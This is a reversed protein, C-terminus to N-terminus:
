PRSIDLAHVANSLPEGESPFGIGLEGFYNYGWCWVSDSAGIACASGYVDIAKVDTLAIKEPTSSSLIEGPPESGIQEGWCYAEEGATLACTTFTGSAVAVVESLGVVESPVYLESSSERGLQGLENAGWCYVREMVVACTHAGGASIASAAAPLAVVSPAVQLPSTAPDLGLQGSANDGWCEVVGESTLLCSHWKGVTVQAADHVAHLNPGGDSREVPVPGSSQPLASPDGLAPNGLQGRDARGWCVVDGDTRVVCTHEHYAAIQQAHDIHFGVSGGDAPRPVPSQAQAASIQMSSNDGWCHVVHEPGAIACAHSSGVAVETVDQIGVLTPVSSNLEGDNGLQGESGRGWCAVRGRTTVACTTGNGVSVHAIEECGQQWDCALQCSTTDCGGCRSLRTIDTACGFAISGQDCWARGDPCDTIQLEGDICEIITDGDIEENPLLGGEPRNDVRGDCDNDIGDCREVERPNAWLGLAAPDDNCDLERDSSACEVYHPPAGCAMVMPAVEPAAPFRDGDVDICFARQQGRDQLALPEDEARGPFEVYAEDVFGNCNNDRGDCLEQTDPGPHDEAISDNCDYLAAYLLEGTNRDLNACQPGIYGDRDVDALVPDLGDASAVTTLDCDEDKHLVDCVERAGPFAVPDRDDCDRLAEDPDDGDAGDGDADHVDGGCYWARGADHAAQCDCADRAEDCALESCPAAGPVCTGPAAGAAGADGDLGESCREQGNCFLGDDCDADLVCTPDEADRADTGADDDGAHTEVAIPPAVQKSVVDCDTNSCREDDSLECGSWVQGVGLLCSIILAWHNHETCHM